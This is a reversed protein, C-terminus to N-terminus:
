DFQHPTVPMRSMAEANMQCAEENSQVVEETLRYCIGRFVRTGDKKRIRQLWAETTRAFGHEYAWDDIEVLAQKNDRADSDVLVVNFKGWDPPDTAVIAM